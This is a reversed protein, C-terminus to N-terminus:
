HSAPRSSTTTTARSHSSPPQPGASTPPPPPARNAAHDTAVTRTSNPGDPGYGLLSLAVAPMSAQHRALLLGLAGTEGAQARLTLEKDTPPDLSVM